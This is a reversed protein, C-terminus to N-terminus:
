LWSKSTYVYWQVQKFYLKERLKEHNAKSYKQPSDCWEFGASTTEKLVLNRKLGM